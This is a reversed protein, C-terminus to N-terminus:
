ITEDQNSAQPSDTSAPKAVFGTQTIKNFETTSASSTATKYSTSSRSKNPTFYDPSFSELLLLLMDTAPFFSFDRQSCHFIAYVFSCSGRASAPLSLSVVM